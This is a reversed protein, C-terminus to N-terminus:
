KNEVNKGGQSILDFSLDCRVKNNEFELEIKARKRRRDVKIINGELGQLPGEVVVIRDNDDFYVKSHGVIEGATMFHELIKLDNGELAVIKQNSPLFRYFNPTHRIISYLNSDFLKELNQTEIFIYGPFIPRIEAKSIGKKRITINRRLYIFRQCDALEQMTKTIREIFQAEGSSRVQFAYYKMNKLIDYLTSKKM